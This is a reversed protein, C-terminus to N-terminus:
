RKHWWDVKITWLVLLKVFVQVRAAMFKMEARENFGGHALYFDPCFNACNESDTRRVRPDRLFFVDDEDM